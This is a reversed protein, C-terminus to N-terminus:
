LNLKILELLKIKRTFEYNDLEGETLLAEKILSVQIATIEALMKCAQAKDDFSIAPHSIKIHAWLRKQVQQLLYYSQKNHWRYYGGARIHEVLSRRQPQADNLVPGFRFPMRWLWLLLLASLSLVVYRANNWLWQWLPPMDDVRILWVAGNHGPQSVLYHLFRAHDYDAIAENSFMDTTTMVTLLGRGIPFQMLYQGIEDKIVRVPTTNYASNDLTKYYPFNVEITSNNDVSLRVPIDKNEESAETETSFLLGDALLEDVLEASPPASQKVSVPSYDPFYKAEIIAHGGAKLWALLHKSLEKNITERQTAILLTHRSSPLDRFATLANVQQVEIGMKRLFFEAGLLYNTKAIGQFGVEQKENVWSFNKYFWNGTLLVLLLVLLTLIIQVPKSM